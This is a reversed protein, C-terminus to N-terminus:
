RGLLARARHTAGRFGLGVPLKEPRVHLTHLLRVLAKEAQSVLDGSVLKREKGQLVPEVLFITLPELGVQAGQLLDTLLEGVRTGEGSLGEGLLHLAESPLPLVEPTSVDAQDVVGLGLPERRGEELRAIQQDPAGLYPHPLRLGLGLNRVQGRVASGARPERAGLGHALRGDRLSCALPLESLAPDQLRGREGRCAVVSM